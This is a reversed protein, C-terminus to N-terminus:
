KAKPQIQLSIRDRQDLRLGDTDSVDGLDVPLAELEVNGDANQRLIELMRLTQYFWPAKRHIFAGFCGQSTLSRNEYTKVM